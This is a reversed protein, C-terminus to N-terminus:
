PPLPARTWSCTSCHPDAGPFAGAGSPWPSCVPFALHVDIARLAVRRGDFEAGYLPMSVALSCALALWPIGVRKTM